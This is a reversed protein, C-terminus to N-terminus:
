NRKTRILCTSYEHSIQFVFSSHPLDDTTHFVFLLHQFGPKGRIMLLEDAHLRHISTACLDKPPQNGSGPASRAPARIPATGM